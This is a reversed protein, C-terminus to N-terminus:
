MWRDVDEELVVCNENEHSHVKDEIIGLSLNQKPHRKIDLVDNMGRVIEESLYNMTKIKRSFILQKLIIFCSCPIIAGPSPLNMHTSMPLTMGLRLMDLGPGVKSISTWAWSLGLVPWIHWAQARGM